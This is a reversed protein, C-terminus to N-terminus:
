SQNKKLRKEQTRRGIADGIGLIAAAYIVLQVVVIVRIQWVPLGKDVELQSL